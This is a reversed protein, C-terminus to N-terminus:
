RHGELPALRPLVTVTVAKGVSSSFPNAPEGIDKSLGSPSSRRASSCASSCRL